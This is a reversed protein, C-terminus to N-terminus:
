TEDGHVLNEGYWTPNLILQIMLQTRMEKVTLNHYLCWLYKNIYATWIKIRGLFVMSLGTWVTAKPKFTSTMQRPSQKIM